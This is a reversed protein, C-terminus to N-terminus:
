ALRPFLAEEELELHAELDRDLDALALCLASWTTCSGAPAKWGNTAAKLAALHLRHAAHDRHLDALASAPASGIHQVLPFLIEEEKVLHIQLDETLAAFPERVTALDQQDAGHSEALADLMARIHNLSERLPLHHRTFLHTALEAPTLRAAVEDDADLQELEAVLVSVDLGREACVDTLPRRGDCCFGIGHRAFLRSAGPVTAALDSVQQRPDLPM